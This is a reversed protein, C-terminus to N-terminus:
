TRSPRLIIGEARLSQGPTGEKGPIGPNQQGIESKEVELSRVIDLYSALHDNLYQMIEESKNSRIGGPGQGGAMGSAPGRFGWGSQM